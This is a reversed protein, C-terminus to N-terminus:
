PASQQQHVVLEFAIFADIMARYTSEVVDPSAGADVGLARVKEIVREVRAPARVSATDTKLQGARVVWQQRRAILEVIQRDLEDIRGRVEEISPDRSDIAETMTTLLADRIEVVV